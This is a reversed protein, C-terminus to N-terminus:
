DGKIESEIWMIAEDLKTRFLSLKRSNVDKLIKNTEDRFLRTKMSVLVVRNKPTPGEAKAKADLEAKEEPTPAPIEIFGDPM